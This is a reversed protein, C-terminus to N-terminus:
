QTGETARALLKNFSDEGLITKGAELFENGDILGKSLYYRAEVLVPLPHDSTKSTLFALRKKAVEATSLEPPLPVPKLVADLATVAKTAEREVPDNAKAADIM